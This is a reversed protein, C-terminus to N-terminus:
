ATAEDVRVQLRNIIEEMIAHDETYDIDTLRKIENRATEPSSMDAKLKKLLATIVAKPSATTKAKKEETDSADTDEDGTLIGLANMFAYRKAFTIRAGHKQPDSMFQETGIPIEFASTESHGQIHTIKCIARVNTDTKEETFSYSLGHKGLIDKVQSVIADLPAFKYRVNQGGKEMVAKTKEIIPCDAQFKAVAETYAERAMEAKVEKRLAFLRELTEINVNSAVATNILAEVSNNRVEPPNSVTVIENEAKKKGM